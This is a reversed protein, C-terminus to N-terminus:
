AVTFTARTTSRVTRGGTKRSTRVTVKCTGASTTQLTKRDRLMRCRGSTSVVRTGAPIRMVKSLSYRAGAKLSKTTTGPSTTTTATGDTAAPVELSVDQSLFSNKTAYVTVVYKKSSSATITCTTKTTSCGM